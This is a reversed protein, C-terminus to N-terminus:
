NRIRKRTRIFPMPHFPAIFITEKTSEPKRARQIPLTSFFTFVFASFLYIFLIHFCLCFCFFSIYFSHSFLFLFLFFIFLFVSSDFTNRLSHRRCVPWFTSPRKNKNSFSNRLFGGFNLEPHLHLPALPAALRVFHLVPAWKAWRRKPCFYSKPCIKIGHLIQPLNEGLFIGFFIKRCNPCLRTSRPVFLSSFAM